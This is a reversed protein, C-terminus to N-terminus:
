KGEVDDLFEIVFSSNTIFCQQDTGACTQTPLDDTRYYGPINIGIGSSCDLASSVAVITTLVVLLKM